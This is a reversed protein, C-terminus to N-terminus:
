FQGFSRKRIKSVKTPKLATRGSEITLERLLILSGTPREAMGSGRQCRVSGVTVGCTGAIATAWLNIKISPGSTYMIIMRSVVKAMHKTSTM